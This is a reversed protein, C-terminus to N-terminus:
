LILVLMQVPPRFQQIKVTEQDLAEMRRIGRGALVVSTRRVVAMLTRWYLRLMWMRRLAQSRPPLSRATANSRRRGRQKRCQRILTVSLPIVESSGVLFVLNVEFPTSHSSGGEGALFKLGVPSRPEPVADDGNAGAQSAGEADADAEAKKGPGKKEKKKRFQQLQTGAVRFVRDSFRSCFDEFDCIFFGIRPHLRYRRAGPLSSIPAATTGAGAAEREAAAGAAAAARRIWASIERLATVSSPSADIWAL